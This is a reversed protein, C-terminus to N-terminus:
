TFGCSNGNARGQTERRLKIQTALDGFDAYEMVIYLLRTDM